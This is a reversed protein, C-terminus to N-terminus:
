SRVPHGKIKRFVLTLRWKIRHFFRRIRGSLPIRRGLGEELTYRCPPCIGCPRGKRTPWFCFWTSEMIDAFGREQAVKLMQLKTMDLLPFRFPRFLELDPDNPHSQLTYVADDAGSESGIPEAHPAVFVHAKDDRHISLELDNLGMSHAFRAIFGYQNGLHNQTKLRELQADIAADAPIDSLERYFIPRLLDRAAPKRQFVMEKIEHMAQIERGFSPRGLDILYYPQVTKNHILLLSLLRFTSDWGGTWLLNIADGSMPVSM